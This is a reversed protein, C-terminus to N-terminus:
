SEQKWLSAIIEEIRQIKGDAVTFWQVGRISYAEGTSKLTGSERLLVAIANDQAIMSEVEPQQGSVLAFNKRTAEVVEDRGQWRGNMPGFGCISLEVTEALSEAFAGFDGAIVAEFARHLIAQPDERQTPTEPRVARLLKDTFAADM